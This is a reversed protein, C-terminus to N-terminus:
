SKYLYILEKERPGQFGRTNHSEVEVTKKRRAKM